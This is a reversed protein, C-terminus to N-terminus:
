VSRSREHRQAGGGAGMHGMTAGSPVSRRARGVPVKVPQNDTRVRYIITAVLGVYAGFPLPREPRCGSVAGCLRAIPGPVGQSSHWAVPVPGLASRMVRKLEWLNYFRCGDLPSSRVMKRMRRRLGSWSVSNMGGVFVARRTVRGAERLAELPNEVLELTQIMVSLDFANDEFPLAEAMGTKLTCRRGLRERARNIMYPSADVGSIDLGLGKLLLLHSGEGCGIDLVREGHHVALLSPLCTELWRDMARGQPGRAWAAYQRATERDFVMGM